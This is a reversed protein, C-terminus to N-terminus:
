VITERKFSFQYSFVRRTYFVVVSHGIISFLADNIILGSTRESTREAASRESARESRKEGSQEAESRESRESARESRESRGSTRESTPVDSEM